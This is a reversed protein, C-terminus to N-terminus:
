GHSNAPMVLRFERIMMVGEVMECELFVSEIGRGAVELKVICTSATVWTRRQVAELPSLRVVCPMMRVSEILKSCFTFLPIRLGSKSFHTLPLCGCEFIGTTYQGPCAPIFPFSRASLSAPLGVKM